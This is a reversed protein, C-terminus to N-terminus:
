NGGLPMALPDTLKSQARMALPGKRPSKGPANSRKPAFRGDSLINGTSNDMGGNGTPIIVRFFRVILGTTCNNMSQARSNVSGSPSRNRFEFGCQVGQAEDQHPAFRRRARLRGPVTEARPTKPGRSTDHHDVASKLIPIAPGSEHSMR